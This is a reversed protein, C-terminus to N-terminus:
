FLRANATRLRKCLQRAVATLFELAEAPHEDRLRHFADRHMRLARANQMAKVTASATHTDEILSVEGIFEAPEIKGVLRHAHAPNEASSAHFLGDLTFYLYDHPKGEQIITTDRDFSIIDTFEESALLERTKPSVGAEDALFRRNLLVEVETM